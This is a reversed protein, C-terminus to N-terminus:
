SSPTNSKRRYRRVIWYAGYGVALIPPLNSDAGAGGSNGEPSGSREASATRLASGSNSLGSRQVDSILETCSLGDIV